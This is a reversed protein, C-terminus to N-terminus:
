SLISAVKVLVTCLSISDCWALHLECRQMGCQGYGRIPACPSLGHGCAAFVLLLAAQRSAILGRSFLHEAVSSASIREINDIQRIFPSPSISKSSIQAGSKSDNERLFHPSFAPEPEVQQACRAQRPKAQIVTM